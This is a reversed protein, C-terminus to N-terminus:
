FPDARTRSQADALLVDRAINVTQMRAKVLDRVADTAGAPLRDPHFELALQRHAAKIQAISAGPNLGLVAFHHALAPAAASRGSAGNQAHRREDDRDTGAPPVRREAEPSGRHARQEERRASHQQQQATQSPTAPSGALKRIRRQRVREAVARAALSTAFMFLGHLM